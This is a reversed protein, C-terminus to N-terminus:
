HAGAEENTVFEGLSLLLLLIPSSMEPFSAYFFYILGVAGRTLLPAVASSMVSAHM